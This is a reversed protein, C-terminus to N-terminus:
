LEKITLVGQIPNKVGLLNELIISNREVTTKAANGTVHRAISKAPKFPHMRVPQQRSPRGENM